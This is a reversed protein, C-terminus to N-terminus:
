KKATGAMKDLRNSMNIRELDAKDKEENLTEFQGRMMETSENLRHLKTKSEKAEQLASDRENMASRYLNELERGRTERDSLERKYSDNKKKLLANESALSDVLEKVRSVSERLETDRKTLAANAEEADMARKQMIEFKDRLENSEHIARKAAGKQRSLESDSEAMSQKTTKLQMRLLRSEDSEKNHSMAQRKLTSVESKLASNEKQLEQNACSSAARLAKIQEVLQEKEKEHTSVTNDLAQSKTTLASQSRYLEKEAEELRQVLLDVEDKDMCSIESATGQRNKNKRERELSYAMDDIEERKAELELRIASLENEASEVRQVFVMKEEEYVSLAEKQAQVQSKLEIVKTQLEENLDNLKNTQLSESNSVDQSSQIMNLNHELEIIKYESQISKHRLENNQLVLEDRESKVDVIDSKLNVIEKKLLSTEDDVSNTSNVCYKLADVESRIAKLRADADEKEGITFELLQKTKTVELAISKCKALADDREKNAQSIQKDKLESKAFLEEIWDLADNKHSSLEDIQKGLSSILSNANALKGELEVNQSKYNEIDEYASLSSPSYDQKKAPKSGTLEEKLKQIEKVKNALEIRLLEDGYGNQPLCSDDKSASERRFEKTSLIIDQDTFYKSHYLPRKEECTQSEDFLFRKLNALEKKLDEGESVSTAVSCSTENQLNFIRKELRENAMMSRELDFKLKAIIDANSEVVENSVANTKVLKARTAFQLTSRTEDIYEDSPSICCIVAMRANGSLSPKLIRTLKSDRYNVHGPNKQGLSM